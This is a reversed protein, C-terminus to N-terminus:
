LLKNIFAAEAETVDVLPLRVGGVPMGKQRLAYKVAVPNPVPHPCDFMGKFVPYCAQHLSAAEESRGDLHAQILKKMQRGIIHSSVSVIGYGGVTLVPLTTSDDGSYVKFSDPTSTVIKTIQDLPACDKTAVINGIAALRITTEASMNVSTRGPVNYLIVPLSTAEAVAKFHQYLGEQSPRNYYPVVVLVGDVGCKEAERTMHISHATSNSGTGAIVKRRGGVKRVVFRFLELKEEDSLTPSEGTTGAVVLSDSEQENILYDILRETTVWDIQGNSDFPTVMATVLRGFDM